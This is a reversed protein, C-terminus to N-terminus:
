FNNNSLLKENESDWFMHQSSSFSPQIKKILAFHILPHITQQDSHLIETGPIRRKFDKPSEMILEVKWRELILLIPM